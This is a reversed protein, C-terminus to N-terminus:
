ARSKRRAAGPAAPTPDAAGTVVEEAADALQVRVRGAEEWSPAPLGRDEAENRLVIFALAHLLTGRPADAAFLRSLPRGTREELLELDGVSLQEVDTPEITITRPL